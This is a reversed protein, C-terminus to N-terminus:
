MIWAYGVKFFFTRDTRTLGFDPIGLQDDSYGLFLVTQANLKYSFLLQTFLTRTKADLSPQLAPLYLDVTRRLDLYQFIGRVFCRSNFNYILRLQSLNAEFLRGGEVNLIQLTHNILANVHRGLKLEAGPTLVLTDAPRNNTFDIADGYDVNFALRTAGSPQINSFLAWRNMGAYLRGGFLHTSRTYATELFSQLPGGVNADLVIQEDTLRGEHDKTRDGSVSLNLQTFRDGPGGYIQRGFYGRTDRIDVRPIFGSDARLEPSEDEYTLGWSWDRAQHDYNALIANGQFAGAPQDFSRVIEDPYRTDSRVLQFRMTDAGGLRFFGDMGALHNHYDSGQRGAYLVGLSSNSGVDRRFRLVGSTVKERLLTFLSEQNSPFTLQNVADEAAFVAVANGGERANLKAGWKPDVVTRTFVAQLPTSFYDAGELFFPRKEPYFLAFRENVNLQAVDAEVQSFDPNLTASLAASPTIGWRATVGADTRAHGTQLDGPGSSGAGAEDTRNATVTPTISLNRGPELNEFGSVKVVQCLICSNNRDRPAAGIRHRVSRPYSRGVDFGWTQVGRTRPYRIQNLPIAIEVVYGDATIRGASSWILDFSWDEGGENPSFSADAQVGLPNIRFQLGHREDNFPDIQLMVHDDQVLTDIADRDMYHARIEAPRPDHAKFAAYLYHDDYTVLFDTAVPPVANDGPQWEYPVDFTLASSWAPEDLRGDIQIPSTARHIEFHRFELPRAAPSQALLAAPVLLCCFGTLCRVM